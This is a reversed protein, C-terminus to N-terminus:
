ACFAEYGVERLKRQHGWLAPLCVKKRQCYKTTYEVIEITDLTLLPFLCPPGASAFCMLCDEDQGWHSVPGKSLTGGHPLKAFVNGLRAFPNAERPHNSAPLSSPPPQLLVTNIRVIQSHQPATKKVFNGKPMGKAYACQLSRTLRAFFSPTHPHLVPFHYDPLPTATDLGRSEQVHFTRRVSINSRQNLVLNLIELPSPRTRM